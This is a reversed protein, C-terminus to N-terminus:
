AEVETLEDMAQRYEDPGIQRGHWAAQGEMYSVGKGKVTEAIIATPGPWEIARHITENIKIVDHGDCILTHMGFASLKAQLDGLPMIEDVMGDLQVRNRDVIVTLSAPRWKGIAM